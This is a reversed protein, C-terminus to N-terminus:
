PPARRRPTATPSCCGRPTRGASTEPCACSASPASGWRGRATPQTTTWARRSCAWTGTAWAARSSSGPWSRCRAATPPAGARAPSSPGGGAAGEAGEGGGGGRAGRRRPPPRGLPRSLVARVGGGGRGGGGGGGGYGSPPGFEFMGADELFFDRKEPFFLPFRTLNVRRDDVETEAFDTNTTVRVSTSPTPRWSIDLGGDFDEDQGAGPNGVRDRSTGAKVYPTVDIGIGQEMGSMGVLQGGEALNFFRYAVKPSAWRADEGNAIRKRQVNFGWTSEGERFALTKFPLKLEAVWGQDTVRSRGYWIGDWSKNFSSGSDALLGDGGSGGATIQFWFGFRETNFTDFWLEMVDDYRVFADRDMQRARVEEPDDHCVIGVYFAESDFALLVETPYTPTAGEVPETATLAGVPTARSWFEEDLVGDVEVEAEAGLFLPSVQPKQAVAPVALALLLTTSRLRLIINKRARFEVRTSWRPM